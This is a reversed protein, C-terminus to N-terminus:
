RPRMTSSSDSILATLKEPDRIAPYLENKMKLLVSNKDGYSAASDFDSRAEEIKMLIMTRLEDKNQGTANSVSELCRGLRGSENSVAAAVQDFIKEHLGDRGHETFMPHDPLITNSVDLDIAYAGLKPGRSLTGLTHAIAEAFTGSDTLITFDQDGTGRVIRGDREYTNSSLILGECMAAAHRCFEQYQELTLM